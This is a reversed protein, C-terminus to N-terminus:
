CNPMLNKSASDGVGPFYLGAALQTSKSSFLVHGAIISHGVLLSLAVVAAVAAASRYRIAAYLGVILGLAYPLYLATLGIVGYAGIVDVPDTEATAAVVDRKPTFQAFRRTHEVFSSGIATQVANRSGVYKGHPSVTAPGFRVPQWPNSVRCCTPMRRLSNM